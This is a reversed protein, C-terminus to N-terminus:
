PAAPTRAADADGGGARRVDRALAEFEARDRIYDAEDYDGSTLVACIAGASFDGLELWLMPPAHLAISPRDLVIETRVAGDDVVAACRGQLMILLQHQARHAHHSRAGGPPVDHLVFLRRIDFPVQAHAQAVLVFGREDGIDPLAILRHAPRSGRESM